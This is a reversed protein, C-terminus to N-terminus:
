RSKIRIFRWLREVFGMEIYNKALGYVLNTKEDQQKISDTAIQLNKEIDAIRLMVKNLNDESNKVTNNLEALDNKTEVILTNQNTFYDSVSNSNELLNKLSESFNEMDISQSRADDKITAIDSKIFSVDCDYKSFINEVHKIRSVEKLAENEIKVFEQLAPEKLIAHYEVDLLIRFDGKDAFSLDIDSFDLEIYPDDHFSAFKLYAPQTEQLIFDNVKKYRSAGPELVLTVKQNSANEFKISRISFVGPYNAPDFRIASLDTNKPLDFSISAKRDNVPINVVREVSNGESYEKKDNLIYLKAVINEDHAEGAPTNSDLNFFGEAISKFFVRVDSQNSSAYNFFEEFKQPIQDGALLVTLGNSHVFDFIRYKDSLEDVYQRVGFDRGEVASDHFIVVARDSLKPLWTEFDEKVAEYTHLGDIHLLDISKDEFDHVADKFWKRILTSFEAYRPDHYSRLSQYVEDGYHRAHEDGVWSDVAFCKTNTNLQKVAQCVALYSNGSDTGLEVFVRPRLLDILLYAFPIHGVWPYPPVIRPKLFIVPHKEFHFTSM